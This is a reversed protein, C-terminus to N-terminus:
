TPPPVPPAPPVPAAAAAPPPAGELAEFGFDVEFSNEYMELRVRARGKRRDVRVIKGELNKLPGTVVRIRKNEDFYAVSKQVIEGFSLFHSLLDQDKRDLSVINDNSLLFRVFGPQRKLVGYLEPDVDPAQLFIYSSFIPALSEQWRGSRRIRLSRRPWLLRAETNELSRRAGALYQEEDGTWVQLAYYAMKHNKLTGNRVQKM